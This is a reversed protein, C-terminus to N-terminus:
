TGGSCAGMAKGTTHMHETLWFLLDSRDPAEHAKVFAKLAAVDM